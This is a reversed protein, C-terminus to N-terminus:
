TSKTVPFQQISGMYDRVILGITLWDDLIANRQAFKVMSCKVAKKETYSRISNDDNSIVNKFFRITGHEAMPKLAKVMFLNQQGPFIFKSRRRIQKFSPPVTKFLNSSWDVELSPDLCGM